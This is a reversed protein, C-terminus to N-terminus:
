KASKERSSIKKRLDELRKSFIDEQKEISKVRMELLKVKESLETKAKDKDKKILLDGVLKFVEGSKEIEKLASQTESLEMQFAQKQLALNHLNQDIAQMEQLEQESLKEM